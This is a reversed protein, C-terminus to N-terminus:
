GRQLRQGQRDPVAEACLGRGCQHGRLRGRRDGPGLRVADEDHEPYLALASAAHDGYSTGAIAVTDVTPAQNGIFVSQGMQNNGWSSIVALVALSVLAIIASLTGYFLHLLKNSM